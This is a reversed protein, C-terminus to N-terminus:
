SMITASLDVVRLSHVILRVFRSAFSRGHKRRRWVRDVGQFADAVVNIDGASSRPAGQLAHSQHRNGLSITRIRNLGDDRSSLSNEPFVSNLFGAGFPRRQAFPVLIQLQM